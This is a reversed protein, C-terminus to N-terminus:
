PIATGTATLAAVTALERRRRDLRPRAFIDGYVFEVIYRALDSAIEELSKLINAVHAGSIAEIQELGHQYRSDDM